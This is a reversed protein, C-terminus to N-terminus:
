QGLILRTFRDKGALDKLIECTLEPRTAAIERITESQEAGTELYMAGGPRLYQPAQQILIEICEVGRPGAVLAGVPEHAAVEPAVEKLEAESLYPPNSVILDFTGEINSYWDSCVLQVRDSLGLNAVNERALELTDPSIDAAVVQAEPYARALAIAIAGTGTGLDLIRTRGQRPQERTITEVLEETESRPILARRDVKLEFDMFSEVGLIYQLPERGARRKMLPRLTELVAENMPKEFDLYLQMRRCGLVHAILLEADLRPNEIGYKEFYGATKKLISLLTEM